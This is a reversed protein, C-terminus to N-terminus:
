RRTAFDTGDFNLRRGYFGGAIFLANTYNLHLPGLGYFRGGELLDEIWGSLTDILPINKSELFEQIISQHSVGELALNARALGAPLIDSLQVEIDLYTEPEASMPTYQHLHCVSFKGNTFIDSIAETQDYHGLLYSGIATKAEVIRDITGM